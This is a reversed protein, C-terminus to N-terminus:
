FHCNTFALCRLSLLLSRFVSSAVFPSLEICHDPVLVPLQALAEIEDLLPVFSHAVAPCAVNAHYFAATLAVVAWNRTLRQTRAINAALPLENFCTLARNANLAATIEADTEADLEPEDHWVSLSLHTLCANERLLRCLAPLRDGLHYQAEGSILQFEVLTSSNRLAELLEVDVFQDVGHLECRFHTLPLTGQVVVAIPSSANNPADELVAMDTANSDTLSIQRLASTEGSFEAAKRLWEIGFLRVDVALSVLTRNSALALVLAETLLKRKPSSFFDDDAQGASVCLALTELTQNQALGSVFLGCLTPYIDWNDVALSLTLSRLRAPKALLLPYLTALEAVHTTQRLKVRQQQGLAAFFLGTAKFTSECMSYGLESETLLALRAAFAASVHSGTGVLACGKHTLKKLKPLVGDALRRHFSRAFRASTNLKLEELQVCTELAQMTAKFPLKAAHSTHLALDLEELSARLCVLVSAVQKDDRTSDAPASSESLELDLKLARLSSMNEFCIAPPLSASNLSLLSLSQLTTCGGLKGHLTEAPLLSAFSITLQRLLGHQACAALVREATSLAVSTCTIHVSQLSPRVRRLFQELPKMAKEAAGEPMAAFCSVSLDRYKRSASPVFARSVGLERWERSAAFVLQLQAATERLLARAALERVSTAQKVIQVAETETQRKRKTTM